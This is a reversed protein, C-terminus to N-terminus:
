KVEDKKSDDARVTIELRDSHKTSPYIVGVRSDLIKDSLISSASEKSIEMYTTDNDTYIALDLIQNGKIGCIPLIERLTLAKQNSM